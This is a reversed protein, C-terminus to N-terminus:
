YFTIIRIYNVEHKTWATGQFYGVGVIPESKYLYQYYSAQGKIDMETSNFLLSDVSFKCGFGDSIYNDLGGIYKSWFTLKYTKGKILTKNLRASVYEMSGFTNLLGLGICYNGSIPKLCFRMSPEFSMISLSDCYLSSRFIDPTCNTPVYWQKAYFSDIFERNDGVKSITEEFDGNPILNQGLSFNFSVMLALVFVRGM